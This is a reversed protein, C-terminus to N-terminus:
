WNDMHKYSKDVFLPLMWNKCNQSPVSGWWGFNVEGLQSWTYGANVVVLSFFYFSKMSKGRGITFFFLTEESSSVTDRLSKRKEEAMMIVVDGVRRLLHKKEPTIEWGVKKEVNQSLPFSNKGDPFSEKWLLLTEHPKKVLLLWCHM